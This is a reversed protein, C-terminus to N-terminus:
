DERIPELMCQILSELFEEESQPQQTCPGTFYCEPPIM